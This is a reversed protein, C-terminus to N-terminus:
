KGSVVALLWALNTLIIALWLPWTRAARLTDRREALYAEVAEAVQDDIEDRLQADLESM